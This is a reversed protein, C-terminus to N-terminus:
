SARLLPEYGCENWVFSTNSWQLDGQGQYTRRLEAPGSPPRGLFDAASLVVTLITQFLHPSLYLGLLSSKSILKFYRLNHTPSRVPVGWDLGGTIGLGPDGTRRLRPKGTCGWDKSDHVPVECAGKVPYVIKEVPYPVKKEVTVPYPKPVPVPYHRVVPVPVKIHVPYPVKKEVPVPYPHPVPVTVEKNIIISKIRTTPHLSHEGYGLLGLSAQGGLEYGGHGYGTAYGHHGEPAYVIEEVGRKETKGSPKEEVAKKNKDELKDKEAVATAILLAVVFVRLQM